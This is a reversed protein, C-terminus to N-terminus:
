DGSLLCSNSPWDSVLVFTQEPNINEIVLEVTSRAAHPRYLEITIVFYSRKDVSRSIWTYLEMRMKKDPWLNLKSNAISGAVTVKMPLTSMIKVASTFRLTWAVQTAGISLATQLVQAPFANRVFGATWFREDDAVDIFEKDNVDTEGDVADESEAFSQHLWHRKVYLKLFIVFGVKCKM